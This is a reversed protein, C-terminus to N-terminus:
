KKSVSGGSSAKKEVNKPDGWFDIDGGSSAKAIISETAHTDINSGSSAKAYVIQSILEEADLSSGSSSSLEAENCSGTLKLSSGSSSSGTLSNAKIQVKLNSGSSSKATFNKAKFVDETSVNSGSSATIGELSPTTVYVKRAKANWINKEAYIKLVDNEVETKIIDHLNEDAEVLVEVDNGQGIVVKIGNSVKVKSFTSTINRNKEVVNKNGKIRNVDIKCSTIFLITVLALSLKVLSKM